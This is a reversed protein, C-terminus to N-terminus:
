GSIEQDPDTRSSDENVRAPGDELGHVIALERGTMPLDGPDADEGAHRIAAAESLAAEVEQIAWDAVAPCDQIRIVGQVAGGIMALIWEIALKCVDESAICVEMQVARYERSILAQGAPTDIPATSLTMGANEGLALLAREGTPAGLQGRKDTQVLATVRELNVASGDACQLWLM